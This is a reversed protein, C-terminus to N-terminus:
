HWQSDLTYELRQVLNQPIPKRFENDLIMYAIVLIFV